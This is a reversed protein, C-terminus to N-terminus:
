LFKFYKKLSKKLSKELVGVFRERDKYLEELYKEIKNEEIEDIHNRIKEIFNNIYIPFKINKNKTILILYDEIEDLLESKNNNKEYYYCYLMYFDINAFEYHNELLNNLLDKFKYENNKILEIDWEIHYPECNNDFTIISTIVRKNDIGQKILMYIDFLSEYVIKNYNIENFQPCLKCIIHYNDNYALIKIKKYLKYDDNNPLCKFSNFLYKMNGYSNHFKKFIDNIYELKKYYSVMYNDKDNKNNRYINIINYLEDIYISSYYQNEYIEIMYYLIISEIYSFNNEKKELDENNYINIIKLKIIEIKKKLYIYNNYYDEKDQEYSLININPRYDNNNKKRNYEILLNNYYDKLNKCEIINNKKFSIKKLIQLIPQEWSYKEYVLINMCFLIYMSMYRINHHNLDILQKEESTEKIDELTINSMFYNYFEITKDNRIEILKTIDINSSCRFGYNNQIKNLRKYELIKKYIYDNNNKYFFYLIEKQRTISVNLLSDFLLNSNDYDKKSKEAFVKLASETIGITFIVPRGDGKSSHISVIRTSSLSENLNISTGNESKHLVSYRTYKDNNKEQWYEQIESNLMSLLNNNTVFPCVILFDKPQRNNKKVEYDYYSMLVNLELEILKENNLSKIKEIDFEEYKHNYMYILKLQKNNDDIENNVNMEPLDYLKHNIMHNVFDKHSKYRTRRCIHQKDYKILEINNFEGNLYTYTNNDYQISQLKDGVIVMSLYYDRLIRILAKGYDEHLDQMEDGIILTKMNMYIGEGFSSYGSINDCNLRNSENIIDKLIQIFKDIHKVKINSINNGLSYMFADVTAIIVKCLRGDSYKIEYIYKKSIDNESIKNFSTLTGNKILTEFEEKIVVKASHMKTLYLFTEINSIDLHKEINNVKYTIIDNNLLTIASYTKGNGAGCQKVLIKSTKDLINNNSELLPYIFESEINGNKEEYEKIKKIFTEKAIYSNIEIMRSKIAKPNIIYIFENIDYCIYDYNEKFNEILWDDNFELIIRNDTLQHIMIREKNGNLIWIIKKNNLYWDEQRLDVEKRTMYSNQIEVIYDHTLDIDTIRYRRNSHSEKPVKYKVEINNFYSQWKTHWTFDKDKLLFEGSEKDYYYSLEKGDKKDYLKGSARTPKGKVVILYNKKYICYHAIYNKHLIENFDESYAKNYTIINNVIRINEM